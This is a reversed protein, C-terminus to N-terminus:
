CFGDEDLRFRVRRYRANVTDLLLIEAAEEVKVM